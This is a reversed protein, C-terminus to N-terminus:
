NMEDFQATVYKGKVSFKATALKSSTMKQTPPKNRYTVFIDDSIAFLFGLIYIKDEKLFM